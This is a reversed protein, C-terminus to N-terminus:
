RDLYNSSEVLNTRRIILSIQMYTSGEVSEQKEKWSRTEYMICGFTAWKELDM